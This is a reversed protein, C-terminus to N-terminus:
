LVRLVYLLGLDFVLTVPLGLAFMMGLPKHSHWQQYARVRYVLVRSPGPPLNRDCNGVQSTARVLSTFFCRTM